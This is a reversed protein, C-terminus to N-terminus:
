LFRFGNKTSRKVQYLAQDARVIADELSDGPRIATAGFSMGPWYPLDEQEEALRNMVRRIVKEAAEQTTLGNCVLIFEDGGMRCVLDKGRVAASLLSAVRQLLRNGEVHGYTDNISKFDDLDGIFLWSSSLDIQKWLEGLTHFNILGTMSDLQALQTMQDARAQVRVMQESLTKPYYEGPLQERNPTSHHLHVIKWEEDKQQFLVTFRTDMDVPVQNEPNTLQLLAQGYVLCTNPGLEQFQCCFDKCHFASRQREQMEEELATSFDRLSQYFEHAGTGIIVVNPDMCQLVERINQEETSFFLRLKEELERPSVM